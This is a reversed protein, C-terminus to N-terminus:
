TKSQEECQIAEVSRDEFKSFEEETTDTRSNLENASKVEKLYQTKLEIFGM